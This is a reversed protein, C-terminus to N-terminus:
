FNHAIQLTHRLSRWEAEGSQSQILQAIFGNINLDKDTWDYLVHPITSMLADYRNIFIHQNDIISKLHEETDYSKINHTSMDMLTRDPPRCYVVIVTPMTILDSLHDGLVRDFLRNAYVQQSICTVRDMVWSLGAYNMQTILCQQEQEVSKPAPGAALVPLGIKKALTTKGSNDAGELIIM